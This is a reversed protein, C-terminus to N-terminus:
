RGLHFTITPQADHDAAAVAAAPKEVIWYGGEWAIVREVDLFVHDPAVAFHGAHERLREYAEAGIEIPATCETDACECVSTGAFPGASDPPLLRLNDNIIRFLQQKQAAQIHRESPSDAEPM